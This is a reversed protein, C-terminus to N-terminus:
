NIEINKLVEIALDEYNAEVENGINFSFKHNTENVIKFVKYRVQTGDDIIQGFDYKGELEPYKSFDMETVKPEVKASMRINAQREAIMIEFDLDAKAQSTSAFLRIEQFAEEGELLFNDDNDRITFNAPVKINKAAGNKPTVEQIEVSKKTGDIEYTIINKDVTNEEKKVAEKEDKTAGNAESNCASLVLATALGLSFLLIKRM